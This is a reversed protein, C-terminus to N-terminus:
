VTVLTWGKETAIKKDDATLLPTGPNGMIYMQRGSSLTALSEFFEVLAERSLRSNAVSTISENPKASKFLVKRLSSCSSFISTTKTNSANRGMDIDAEGLTGCEFFMEIANTCLPLNIAPGKKLNYCRCFMDRAIVVKPINLMGVRRLKSCETFLNWSSSLLPADFSEIWELDNCYAFFGFDESSSNSLAPLYMNNDNIFKLSSCYSFCLKASTIKSFDFAVIGILGFCGRFLANANKISNEGLLTFFTLFQWSNYYDPLDDSGSATGASITMTSLGPLRGKFDMIPWGVDIDEWNRGPHGAKGFGTIVSESSVKIMLQRTGDSMEHLPWDDYAPTDEYTRTGSGAMDRHSVEVFTGDEVYGLAVQCGGPATVTFALFNDTDPYLHFLLYFEDNGVNEDGPMEMWEPDRYGYYPPDDDGGSEGKIARIAQPYSSFVDGPAQGKEELAAKIAAKTEALATLKAAISM